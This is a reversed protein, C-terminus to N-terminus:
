LRRLRGQLLNAGSNGPTHVYPNKKRTRLHELLLGIGYTAATLLLLVLAALWGGGLLFLVSIALMVDRKWRQPTLHYIGLTMPFFLFLFTFSAFQM